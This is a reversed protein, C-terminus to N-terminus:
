TLERVLRALYNAGHEAASGRNFVLTDMVGEPLDPADLQSRVIKPLASLDETRVIVGLNDRMAIEIPQESILTYESNNAKLPTDLFVVPRRRAAAYELAVGSWDSIMTGAEAMSSWNGIERDMSFLHSKSFRKEIAKIRDAHLRATQPHPRLVVNFGALILTEILAEGITEVIGNEGWSPAILVRNRVAQAGSLEVVMKDLRDYGHEVLVKKKAGRIREISRAERLHHPGVCFLTDFQDFAGTRYAMHLSVMSHPIYVYHVKHRSRKVQYTGLDPTTTAFVLADVNAHFWDRAGESNLHLARFRPNELTLAPDDLGSTVYTINPGCEIALIADVIGSLYSWYPRGESYFVLRRWDSPLSQFGVLTRIDRLLGVILGAQLLM